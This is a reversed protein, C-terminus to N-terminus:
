PTPSLTRAPITLSGDANITVPADLPLPEAAAGSVSLPMFPANIPTDALFRLGLATPEVLGNTKTEVRVSIDSAGDAHLPIWTFLTEGAQWHQTACDDYATAGNASAIVRFQRTQDTPASAADVQWRLLLAGPQPLSASMLRLADGRQDAFATPTLATEGALAPAAGSVQYVPYTPGGVMPLSGVQEANALRGLLATAPAGPTVPAILWPRATAAPLALCTPTLSLRDSREGVLIGSEALQYRQDSPTIVEVQAAGTQTQLQALADAGGQLVSLPYGYGYNQYANFTQANTLSLPFALWQASRAIILALLAAELTLAAVTALRAARREVLAVLGRIVVVAGIASVIFVTPYLMMLYHTEIPSTHRVMLAPPLTVSLWLLLNIRWAADARLGRFLALLWARSAAVVGAERQFALARAPRLMRASLALWGVAFLLTALVNLGNDFVSSVGGGTVPGTLAQYLRYLVVPAYSSRGSAFAGVSRLDAFGSLTEWILTPLAVVLLAIAAIVWARLRPVRPALAAGVLTVPALLAASPHFMAALALLAVNGAFWRRGEVCGLYLTLVWLAALPAVDNPQWIFRSYNIAAGCTAFLLTSVAAIRRGFYRLAFVYCLAVGLTNAVATGIAAALPNATLAAFPLLSYESWPPTLTHISFPIGTLPILGHTASMRAVSFLGNQDFLYQTLDIRWFRLFTALALALWFEWQRAWAWASQAPKFIAQAASNGGAQRWDSQAVVFGQGGDSARLSGADGQACLTV